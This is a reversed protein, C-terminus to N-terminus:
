KAVLARSAAIAAQARCRKILSEDIEVSHRSAVKGLFQLIEDLRGLKAMPMEDDEVAIPLLSFLRPLAARDELVDALKVRIAFAEIRLLSYDFRSDSFIYELHPSLSKWLHTDNVNGAIKALNVVAVADGLVIANSTCQFGRTPNNLLSYCTGLFRWARAYGPRRAVLAEAAEAAEKIRGKAALELEQRMEGGFQLSFTPGCEHDQLSALSTKTFGLFNGRGVNWRDRKVQGQEVSPFRTSLNRLRDEVKNLGVIEAQSILWSVSVSALNNEWGQIDELRDLRAIAGNEDGTAIAYSVLLVISEIRSSLGVSAEASLQELLPVLCRAEDIQGSEILLFVLLPLKDSQGYRVAKRCSESALNNEGKKLLAVTLNSWLEGDEKDVEIRKKLDQLAEDFKNSKILYGSRATPHALPPFPWSNTTGSQAQLLFVLYLTLALQKM